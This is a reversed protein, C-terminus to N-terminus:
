ATSSISRLSIEVKEQEDIIYGDQDYFRQATIHVPNLRVDFKYTVWGSLAGYTIIPAAFNVGIIDGWTYHVDYIYQTQNAFDANFDRQPRAARLMKYAESNLATADSSQASLFAEVRGFPSQAMLTPDSVSQVSREDVKGPGGAYVFSVVNSWDERVSSAMFGGYQQSLSYLIFPQDSAFGRNTGRQRGYQRFRFPGPPTPCWVEFGMYYDQQASSQCIEQIASLVNQYSFSKAVTAGIAPNPATDLVFHSTSIRRTADTAGASLNQNVIENIVTSALDSKDAQATGENYAVVRSALIKNPHDCILVISSSGDEEVVREKSGLLWMTDGVIRAPLYYEGAAPAREYLVRCDRSFIQDTYQPSLTITLPAIDNETLTVDISKWADLDQIFEGTPTYLRLIHSTNSM